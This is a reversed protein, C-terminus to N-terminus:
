LHRSAAVRPPEPRDREVCLIHAFTATAISLCVVAVAENIEEDSLGVDGAIALEAGARRGQDKVLRSTLNLISQERPDDSVGIRYDITTTLDVGVNLAEQTHFAICYESELMEAVRLAIAERMQPPLTANQLAKISAWLSELAAPSSELKEFISPVCGLAENIEGIVEPRSPHDAKGNGNQKKWTLTM